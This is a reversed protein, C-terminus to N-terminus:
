AITFVYEHRVEEDGDENKHEDVYWWPDRVTVEHNMARKVLTPAYLAVRAQLQRLMDSVAEGVAASRSLNSNNTTGTALVKLDAHNDEYQIEGGSSISMIAVSISGSHEWTVLRMSAISLDQGANLM